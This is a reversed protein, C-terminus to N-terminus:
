ESFLTLDTLEGSQAGLGLKKQIQVVDRAPIDIAQILDFEEGEVFAEKSQGMWVAKFSTPVTKTRCLFSVDLGNMYPILKTHLDSWDNLYMDKDLRCLISSDKPYAKKPNLKTRRLFNVIDDDSYDGLTVIELDHDGIIRNKGDKTLVLQMIYADPTADNAHPNKVWREKHDQLTCALAFVGACFMETVQKISESNLEDKREMLYYLTERIVKRPSFYIEPDRNPYLKIKRNM